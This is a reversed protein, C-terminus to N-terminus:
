RHRPQEDSAQDCVKKNRAHRRVINHKAAIRLDANRKLCRRQSRDPVFERVPLRVAVCAQCAACQPRYVHGGSRRFGIGLSQPYIEPLAADNPDLVMDRANREPWYGCAHEATQFVRIGPQSRM